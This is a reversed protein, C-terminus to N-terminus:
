HCCTNSTWLVTVNDPAYIVLNGDNQIALYAGPNGNTGTAWLPNHNSDYIVFNGDGQMIALQADSGATGSSWLANDPSTVIPLPYWVLNGDNQLILEFRGDWSEQYDGRTIGEPLGPVTAGRLETTMEYYEFDYPDIGAFDSFVDPLPWNLGAFSWQHEFTDWDLYGGGATASCSTTNTYNALQIGGTAGDDYTGTVLTWHLEKGTWILVAVPNGNQLMWDFYSISIDASGQYAYPRYGIPSNQMFATLMDTPITGADALTDVAAYCATFCVPDFGCIVGCEAAEDITSMWSNTSMESGLTAYSVEEGYWALLNRGATPGCYNSAPECAQVWFGNWPACPVTTDDYFLSTSGDALSSSYRWLPSEPGWPLVLVPTLTDAFVCGQM